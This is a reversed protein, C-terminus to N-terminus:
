MLSTSSVQAQDHCGCSCAAHRCGWTTAQAHRTAEYAMGWGPGSWARGHQGCAPRGGLGSAMETRASGGSGWCVLWMRGHVVVCVTRARSRPRRRGYGQDEILCLWLGHLPAGSVTLLQPDVAPQRVGGPPWTLRTPAHPGLWLEQGDGPMTERGGGLPKHGLSRRKMGVRDWLAEGM